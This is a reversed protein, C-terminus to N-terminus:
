LPPPAPPETGSVGEERSVEDEVGFWHLVVATVGDGALGQSAQPSWTYVSHLQINSRTPHPLSPGRGQGHVPGVSSGLDAVQLLGFVCDLKLM